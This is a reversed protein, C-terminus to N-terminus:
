TQEYESLGLWYEESALIDNLNGALDDDDVVLKTITIRCRGAGRSRLGGIKDLAQLGVVMVWGEVPLGTEMGAIERANVQGTISGEYILNDAAHEISFLFNSEVARTARELKNGTRVTSLAFPAPTTGRESEDGSPKGVSQWESVLHADSFHLHCPNYRSGFLRCIICPNSKCKREGCMKLGLTNTVAECRSRLKGKISSGPIYPLRVGDAKAAGARVVTDDVMRAFGIGTGIHLSTKLHIQYTLEIHTM